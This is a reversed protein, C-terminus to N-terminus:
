VPTLTRLLDGLAKKAAELGKMAELLENTRDDPVFWMPNGAAMFARDSGDLTKLHIKGETLEQFVYLYVGDTVIDGKEPM